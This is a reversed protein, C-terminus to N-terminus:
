SGLHEEFQPCPVFGPINKKGGLSLTEVWLTLDGTPGSADGAQRQVTDEEQQHIAQCKGSGAARQKRSYCKTKTM